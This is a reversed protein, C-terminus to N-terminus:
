LIKWSRLFDLQGNSKDGVVSIRSPFNVIPNEVSLDMSNLWRNIIFIYKGGEQQRYFQQLRQAQKPYNTQQQNQQNKMMKYVANINLDKYGNLQPTM